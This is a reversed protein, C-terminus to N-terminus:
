VVKKQSMGDDVVAEAEERRKREERWRRWGGVEDGCCCLGERRAMEREYVGHFLQGNMKRWLGDKLKVTRRQSFGGEMFASGNVKRAQDIFVVDSVRFQRLKAFKHTPCSTAMTSTSDSADFKLEINYSLTEYTADYLRLQLWQLAPFSAVITIASQIEDIEWDKCNLILNSARNALGASDVLAAVSSVVVPHTDVILNTAEDHIQPHASLFAYSKPLEEKVWLENDVGPLMKLNNIDLEDQPQSCVVFEFIRDRLERPLGMLTPAAM